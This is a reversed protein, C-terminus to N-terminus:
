ACRRRRAAAPPGLLAFFQGSEITLSIGDVAVVEDFEKTVVDLRVDASHEAPAAQRADASTEATAM